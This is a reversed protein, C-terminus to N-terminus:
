RAEHMVSEIAEISRPLAASMVVPDSDTVLIDDEIRIGINWWKPDCSSGAPIYVGPEVTMVVGPKLANGTGLDHVDLGLYHSTGHMFYQSVDSSDQIIGLRLLGRRVVSMAARHSAKFANGARCAAIGSDQAELVISYIARQEASFSGNIPFTRTIDATYGHYEAGCDALIMDGNRTCKRNTEYHLICSNYGSGVISPYGVDESGGKTFEYQMLAELEYEHMGPRAGKMTALHGQISIDIAKQLLRLESSDKLERMEALDKLNTRIYLDPHSVHLADKAAQEVSVRTKSLPDTITGTPMASAIFLTDRGALLSDLLTSLRAYDIVCHFGLNSKVEDIGMTLGTWLERSPDRPKVFFCENVIQGDINAGGPILVLATSAQRCGSLYLLNSNQRYEYDVDNQRNRVDASLLVILSKPSHREVIATRRAQLVSPPCQDHDEVVYPRARQAQVTSNTWFVFSCVFCFLIALAKM